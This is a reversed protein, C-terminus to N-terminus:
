FLNPHRHRTGFVRNIGVVAAVKLVFDGFFFPFLGLALLSGTPVFLSLHALGVTFHITQAALVLLTQLVISRGVVDKFLVILCAAFYIGILYGGTPGMLRAVGGLSFAMFPAGCAIQLLYLGYGAVARWGFLFTLSYVLVQQMIIPVPNFLLPIAIQECLAYVWSLSLILTLASFRPHSYYLGRLHTTLQNLATKKM